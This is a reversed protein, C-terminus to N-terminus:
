SKAVAAPPPSQTGGATEGGSASAGAAEKGASADAAAKAAKAAAAKAAKEAAAKAKAEEEKRAQEAKAEQDLYYRKLDRYRRAVMWADTESISTALEPRLLRILEKRLSPVLWRGGNTLSAVETRECAAAIERIQSETLMSFARNAALEKVARESLETMVSSTNACPDAWTM